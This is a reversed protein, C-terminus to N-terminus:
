AISAAAYFSDSISIIIIVPRNMKGFSGFTRLINSVIAACMRFREIRAHSESSKSKLSVAPRFPFVSEALRVYCPRVVVLRFRTRLM